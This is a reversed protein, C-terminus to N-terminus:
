LAPSCEALRLRRWNWANFSFKAAREESLQEVQARPRGNMMRRPAAARELESLRPCPQTQAEAPRARSLGGEETM